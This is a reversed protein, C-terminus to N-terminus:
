KMKQPWSLIIQNDELCMKYFENESPLGVKSNCLKETNACLGELVNEGTYTGCLTEISSIDVSKSKDGWIKKLKSCVSNIDQSHTLMLDKHLNLSKRSEDQRALHQLNRQSKLKAAKSPHLNSKPRGAARWLKRTKEHESYAVKREKSFNPFQKKKKNLNPKSVEFNQEASIVLTKSCM